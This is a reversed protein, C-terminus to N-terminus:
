LDRTQIKRAIERVCRRQGVAVLIQHLHGHMSLARLDSVFQGLFVPIPALERRRPPQLIVMRAGCDSLLVTGIGHTEAM